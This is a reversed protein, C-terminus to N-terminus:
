GSRMVTRSPPRLGSIYPGTGIPKAAFGDLGVKEIYAKPYIPVATALYELAHPFPAKMHLRVKYDGLKEAGQIWSVTQLTIIKSEPKTVLNLTYVVDDATLASGDHFKVGERIDFDITSDDVMKWGSALSPLYEGTDPDRYVLGDWVLTGILTGERLNNHYQSINDPESDSAFVLTDTSKGAHATAAFGIASVLLSLKLQKLFM